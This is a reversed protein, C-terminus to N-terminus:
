INAKGEEADDAENPVFFRDRVQSNNNEIYFQENAVDYNDRKTKLVRNNDAQGRHNCEGFLRKRFHQKTQAVISKDNLYFIHWELQKEASTPFLAEFISM